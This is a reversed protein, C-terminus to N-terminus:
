KRKSEQYDITLPIILEIPPVQYRQSTRMNNHNQAKSLLSKTMNKLPIIQQLMWIKCIM